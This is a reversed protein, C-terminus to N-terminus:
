HPLTPATSSTPPKRANFNGDTTSLATSLPFPHRSPALTEAKITEGATEADEFHTEGDPGTYVRTYRM